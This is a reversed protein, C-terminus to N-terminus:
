SLLWLIVEFPEMELCYVLSTAVKKGPKSVLRISIGSPPLLPGLGGPDEFRHDTKLLTTNYAASDKAIFLFAVLWMFLFWNDLVLCEVEVKLLM